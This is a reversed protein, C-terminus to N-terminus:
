LLKRLFRKKAADQEKDIRKLLEDRVPKNTVAYQKLTNAALTKNEKTIDYNGTVPVKESYPTSNRFIVDIIKNVYFPDGSAFFAGWLTDIHGPLIIELHKLDITDEAAELRALDEKKWSHAKAFLIANEKEKAHMLAAIFVDEAYTNYNNRSMWDMLHEKNDLFVVTLFGVLLPWATKKRLVDSENMIDLVTNVKEVSPSQYYTMVANDLKEQVEPSINPSIDDVGSLTAFAAAPIFFLCFILWKM